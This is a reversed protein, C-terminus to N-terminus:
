WPITTGDIDIFRGCDAETAMDIHELLRRASTETDIEGNPGGMNTRVWGPHLILTMIGAPALDQALSVAVANLAAKSSRYVYAGGSQNDGMSGMKSTIFALRPAEAAKLNEFLAETIKRPAICNTRLADIWGAEDCAGFTDARVGFIGANHILLDLKRDDLHAKCRAIDDDDTVDLRIIELQDAHAQALGHLDDARHPNRVGAIVTDGRELLQQTLALGIGRSAGTIVATAM